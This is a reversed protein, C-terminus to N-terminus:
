AVEFWTALAPTAAAGAATILFAGARDPVFAIRHTGGPPVVITDLWFPKWGDDLRDLLRFAHGHVRVVQIAATRNSLGLMVTRGRRVSFAPRSSLEAGALVLDSKLAGTFDMREPLGNAPLPNPTALPAARLPTEGYSLTAVTTTGAETAAVIKATAGPALAMDVFLDARNGPGLFVEADRAAFPECPQGDLAMVRPHHAEIRVAMVRGAANVLRLRVRENTRVQWRPTPEGNALLAPGGAKTVSAEAVILPLDRDVAVAESEEVLLFGYLGRRAQDPREAHYWFTGADPCTLRLDISEGPALSPRQPPMTLTGAGRLGHWDLATAEDLGNILRVALEEGRRVRLIPGPVSEGYALTTPSSRGFPAARLVRLDDTRAAQSRAPTAIATAAAAAAM